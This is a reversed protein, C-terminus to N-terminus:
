VLAAITEARALNNARQEAKLEVLRKRIPRYLRLHSKSRREHQSLGVVWKQCVGCYSPNHHHPM